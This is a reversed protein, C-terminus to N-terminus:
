EKNLCLIIVILTTITPYHHGGVTWCLNNVFVIMASKTVADIKSAVKTPPAIAVCDPSSYDERKKYM